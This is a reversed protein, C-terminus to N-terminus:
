LLPRSRSPEPRLPMAREAGRARRGRPGTFLRDVRWIVFGLVLGVLMSYLTSLLEQGLVAGPAALSTAVGSTGLCGFACVWWGQRLKARTALGWVLAPFGIFIELPRPVGGFLNAVTQHFTEVATILGPTGWRRLAESYALGVVLVAVASLIVFAGRSGLGHFGGGLRHAVWLAAILSSLLVVNALMVPRLPAAYAAVAVAGLLAVGVALAYEVIVQRPAKAPRTAVVGLVTATFATLAALGALLWTWGTVVALTSSVAGFATAAVTQAGIRHALLGCLVTSVLAAGAVPVYPPLDVGIDVFHTASLAVGVGLLVLVVSTVVVSAARGVMGTRRPEKPRV